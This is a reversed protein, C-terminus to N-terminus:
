IYPTKNMVCLFFWVSYGDCDTTTLVNMSNSQAIPTQGLRIHNRDSNMETARRSSGETSLVRTGVIKDPQLTM